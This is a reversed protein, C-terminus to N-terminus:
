VLYIETGKGAYDSMAEGDMIGHIYCDGVLRHCSRQGVGPICGARNSRVAFPMHGAAFVYVVDAPKINRLGLGMYRNRTFFLRRKITASTIAFDIAVFNLKKSGGLETLTQPTSSLGDIPRHNGDPTGNPFPMNVRTGRNIPLGKNDIWAIMCNHVYKESGRRYRQRTDEDKGISRGTDICLTRWYAEM